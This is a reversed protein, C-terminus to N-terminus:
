IHEQLRCSDSLGSSQAYRADLYATCAERIDNAWASERSAVALFDTDALRAKVRSVLEALVAATWGTVVSRVRQLFYFVRAPDGFPFLPVLSGGQVTFLRGVVSGM